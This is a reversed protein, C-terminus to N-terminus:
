DIDIFLPSFETEVFGDITVKPLNSNSTRTGEQNNTKSSGIYKPSMKSSSLGFASVTVAEPMFTLQILAAYRM